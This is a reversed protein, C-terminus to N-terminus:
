SILITSGEAKKVVEIRTQFADKLEEIHTIVLIKQFDSQVSNIAERLKDIGGADQTGFGEDIILTPLPAGARRALLRSLAIRVSFDIRFAEGGSFLEYDRTGLEDAIRIDLTESIDGKKTLEQTEFSLSMRGDTMRSLLRNAEEEIEPLATEILMAQIGKKGFIHALERYLSENGVAADRAKRRDAGRQELEDLRILEAKIVAINERLQKQEDSKQKFDAEDRELRAVLGPMAELLVSLEQRAATDTELRRNIETIADEARTANEQERASLSLAEDLQRQREEFPKLREAEGLAADLKKDDFALGAIEVELNALSISADGGYDGVLIKESIAAHEAEAEALKGAAAVADVLGKSILGEDAALRSRDGIIKRELVVVEANLAKIEGALKTGQAAGQQIQGQKQSKETAYRGQVVGLKEEGLETECVPCKASHEHGALLRLKEDISLIEKKLSDIDASLRSMEKQKEQAAQRRSNLVVEQEDLTRRAPELKQKDANLRSLASAQEKLQNISNELVKLNTVLEGKSQDLIREYESKKENLKALNRAKLNLEECSKRAEQLAAYGTEIAGREANLQQYKVLHARSQELHRSERASDDNHRMIAADLSTKQAQVTSLKQVDARLNMLAAEAAILTQEGPVAQDEAQKLERERVGRGGLDTEIDGLAATHRLKENEAEKAKEKARGELVDYVDLGLINGLVAKRRAPQQRTFEDAHGQRLYASNTFTEYDMHLISEIQRQTQTIREGSLPLPLGDGVIFFDLSSQGSARKGKPRAHRRIVRYLQGGAYFDFEVLAENEGQHVLDDDSKARSKGWLAWTIADIISSKGAGNDGSICATHISTFSLVPADGRYPM